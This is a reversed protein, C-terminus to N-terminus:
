WGYVDVCINSQQFFLSVPLTSRQTHALISQVVNVKKSGFLHLFVHHITIHIEWIGSKM